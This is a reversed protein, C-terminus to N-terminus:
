SSFPMEIFEFETMGAFAPIWRNLNFLRKDTRQVTQKILQVGAKAPTVFKYLNGLSLAWVVTGSQRTAM